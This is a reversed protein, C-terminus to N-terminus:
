WIVPDVLIKSVSAFDLPHGEFLIYGQEPFAFVPYDKAVKDLNPENVEYPFLVKVTETTKSTQAM